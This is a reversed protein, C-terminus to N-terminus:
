RWLRWHWWRKANKKAEELQKREVLERHDRCYPAPGGDGVVAVRDCRIPYRTRVSRGVWRVYQCQWKSENM